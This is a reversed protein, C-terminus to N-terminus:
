VSQPGGQGAEGVTPAGGSPQGEGTAPVDTVVAEEGVLETETEFDEPLEVNSAVTVTAIITEEPDDLFTVGDPATIDGLHVTAAAELGSVDVVIQEPIDTPLADINVERTVQELVGGEKVGPADEGGVLEVIVSSHITEDLRVALLDVHLVDDRVPHRQTEKVIVPLPRASDVKLDIVMSHDQLAGRLERTGVQFSIPTVGTGYVIGPVFGSRRLRRTVRSGHEARKQVSLLPRDGAAM